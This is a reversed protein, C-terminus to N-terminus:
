TEAQRDKGTDNSNPAKDDLLDDAPSSDVGTYREIGTVCEGCRLCEWGREEEDEDEDEDGEGKGTTEGKRRSTEGTLGHTQRPGQLEDLEQKAKEWKLLVSSICYYCYLGGCCNVTYPIYVENGHGINPGHTNTLSALFYTSTSPDTPDTIEASPDTLSSAPQTSTSYCIPCINRPLHGLPGAAKGGTEGAKGDASQTRRHRGTKSAPPPPLGFTHLFRQPLLSYLSSLVSSRHLSRSLAKKLAPLDILPMLFLLFETFAEWVLQRNLFEFSVNRSVSKQAYKYRLKLIRTLLTPYRADYLFCLFNLLKAASWLKELRTLLDWALRKLERKTRAPSGRGGSSGGESTSDRRRLGLQNTLTAALTAIASRPSPYDPWGHVLMYDRVKAHLYEPLTALLVYTWRKAAARTGGTSSRSRFDTAFVLNQLKAGYTAGDRRLALHILALKLVLSLEHTYSSRIRDSLTNFVPTSLINALEADLLSSDLQAVRSTRTTTANHSQQQLQLEPLVDNKMSQIASAASTSAASYFSAM